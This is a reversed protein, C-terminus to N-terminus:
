LRLHGQCNVLEPVDAPINKGSLLVNLFPAMFTAVDDCIFLIVCM